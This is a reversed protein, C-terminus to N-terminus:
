SVGGLEVEPFDPVKLCKVGVPCIEFVIRSWDRLSASLPHAITIRADERQKISTEM